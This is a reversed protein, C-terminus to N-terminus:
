CSALQKRVPRIRFASPRKQQRDHHVRMRLGGRQYLSATPILLCVAIGLSALSKKDLEPEATRPNTLNRAFMGGRHILFAWFDRFRISGSTTLASRETFLM